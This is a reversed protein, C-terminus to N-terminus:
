DIERRVQHAYVFDHGAMVGGDRVKPWYAKLDDLVSCYDHRADVYVYDLSNDPILEAAEITLMPVFHLKTRNAYVKLSQSSPQASMTSINAVGPSSSSSSSSLSLSIMPPRKSEKSDQAVLSLM